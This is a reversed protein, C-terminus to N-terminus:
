FTSTPYGDHLPSKERDLGEVLIDLEQQWGTVNQEGGLQCVSKGWNTPDVPAVPGEPEGPPAVPDVPAVPGYPGLVIGFFEWVAAYVRCSVSTPLNTLMVVPPIVTDDATANTGPSTILM